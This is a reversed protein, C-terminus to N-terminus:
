AAQWDRFADLFRLAQHLPDAGVPKILIVPRNCELLLFGGQRPRNEFELDLMRFDQEHGNDFALSLVNEGADNWEVTARLLNAFPRGDPMSTLAVDDAIAQLRKAARRAEAQRHSRVTNFAAEDVRAMEGGTFPTDRLVTAFFAPEAPSTFHVAGSAPEATVVFASQSATRALFRLLEESLAEKPTVVPVADGQRRTITVGRYGAFLTVLADTLLTEDRARRDVHGVTPVQMM